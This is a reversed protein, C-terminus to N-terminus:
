LRVLPFSGPDGRIFKIYDDDLNIKKEHLQKKYDAILDQIWEGQNMQPLDPNEVWQYKIINVGIEKMKEAYQVAEDFTNWNLGCEAICKIMKNM